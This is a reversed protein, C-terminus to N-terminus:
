RNVNVLGEQAVARLGETWADNGVPGLRRMVENLAATQRELKATRRARAAAQHQANTLPM